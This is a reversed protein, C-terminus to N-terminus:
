PTLQQALQKTQSQLTGTSVQQSEQPQVTQMPTLPPVSLPVFRGGFPEPLNKIKEEMNDKVGLLKDADQNFLEAHERLLYEAGEKPILPKMMTQGDQGQEPYALGMFFQLSNLNEMNQAKELAENHYFSSKPKVYIQPEESTILYEKRGPFSRSSPKGRAKSHSSSVMKKIGKEEIEVLDDEYPIERPVYYGVPHGESDRMIDEEKTGEPLDEGALERAIPEPYYQQILNLLIKYHRVIPGSENYKTNLSGRIQQINSRIAAITAKENTLEGAIRKYDNGLAYTMASDIIEDGGQWKNMFDSNQMLSKVDFTSADVNRLPVLGYLDSTKMQDFVGANMSTLFHVTSAKLNDISARWLANKSGVLAKVLYPDSKSWFSKQSTPNSVDAFQRGQQLVNLTSHQRMDFGIDNHLSTVPLYKTVRNEPGYDRIFDNRICISFMGEFDNEFQDQQCAMQYFLDNYLDYYSRVRVFDQRQFWETKVVKSINMYNENNFKEMFVDRPYFKDFYCARGQFMGPLMDRSVGVHFFDLNEDWIDDYVTINKEIEKGSSNLCRVTREQFLYSLYRFGTGFLMKDFNQNFWLHEAPPRLNGDGREAHERAANLWRMKPESEGKIHKFEVEPVNASEIALRSYIIAHITPPFVNSRNQRTLNAIAMYGLVSEKAAKRAPTAFRIMDDIDATVREFLERDSKSRFNFGKKSDLVNVNECYIM